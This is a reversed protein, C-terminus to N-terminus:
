PYMEQNFKDDQVDAAAFGDALTRFYARLAAQDSGVIFLSVGRRRYARVQGLDAVFMGLAKGRRRGAQIIREVATEVEPADLRDCGYSVALDARGIFLCDVEDVAAIEAIAEVALADEIQCIVNCNLDSQRVHESLPVQGFAAARPSNSFGRAGAQYRCSAVARRAGDADLVHPVVVGDAGSDLAGLAHMADASPLRVLVPLTASKAALVCTDLSARDFPAHEADLVVFDLGVGGLVEVVSHAPSKIFTGVLFEGTRLRARLSHAAPAFGASASM